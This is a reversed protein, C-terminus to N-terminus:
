LRPKGAVFAQYFETTFSEPDAYGDLAERWAREHPSAVLVGDVDFIAASLQMTLRWRPHQAPRVPGGDGFHTARPADPRDWRIPADPSRRRVPSPYRCRESAGQPKGRRRQGSLGSKLEVGQPSGQLWPPAQHPSRPP